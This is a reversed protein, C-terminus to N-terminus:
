KVNSDKKKEGEPVAIARDRDRAPMESRPAIPRNAAFQSKDAEIVGAQNRRAWILIIRQVAQDDQDERNSLLFSGLSRLQSIDCGIVAVQGSQLSLSVGLDRFMDAQQGDNIKFQQPVYGGSTSLAQWDRRIPGHHIEPTIQLRVGQAGEHEASVRFWGSAAEFDKGFVRDERNLLLSTEPVSTRAMIEAPEREERLFVAPEIHHPAPAKLISELEPPLTGIIRGIRLGNAALVRRTEDPISHEDVARWTEENIARDGVPREVFAVELQCRKPEIAQGPRSGGIRELLDDPRLQEKTLTCGGVAILFLGFGGALM